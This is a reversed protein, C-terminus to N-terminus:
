PQRLLEKGTTTTRWKGTWELAGVFELRDILYSPYIRPNELAPNERLLHEIESISREEFCFGLVMRYVDAYYPEQEFLQRLREAPGDAATEEMKEPAADPATSSESFVDEPACSEETSRFGLSRRFLNRRSILDIQAM